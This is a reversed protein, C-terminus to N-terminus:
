DRAPKVPARGPLKVLSRCLRLEPFRIGFPGAPNLGAAIREDMVICPGGVNLNSLDRHYVRM